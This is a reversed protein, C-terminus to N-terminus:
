RYMKGLLSKIAQADMHQNMSKVAQFHQNRFEVFGQVSDDPVEDTSCATTLDKPQVLDIILQIQENITNIQTQM